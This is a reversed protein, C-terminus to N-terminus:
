TFLFFVLPLILSTLLGNICLALASFAGSQEGLQQARATGIAHAITGLTLGQTQQGQNRTFSFVLKCGIVSVMGTIIVIAAALDSIGGILETTDVALPTTISKTLASLQVEESFGFLFLCGFASLPALCGGILIVMLGKKGAALITRMQLYLPVALAVTIVSLIYSMPQMHSQYDGLPVNFLMCLVAVAFAGLLIPHFLINYAVRRFVMVSVMYIFLTASLWWWTHINLLTTLIPPIVLDTM